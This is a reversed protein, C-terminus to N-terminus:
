AAEKTTWYKEYRGSLVTCRLALIANAGRVTWHMGSRKLRQAVAVRCGAELVGSTTCLGLAHFAPYRMRHRHTALYEACLRAEPCDDAHRSYAAILDDLNGAELEQYRQPLWAQALETGPGPGWIARSAEALHQKAHYRDLIQIADPFHESVLNWIWAAGDAVVVQQPIRNFGRRKAERCVREAFASIGPDSDHLRASEIAASYTVSGADRCARGELDRSQASWIACLKVERTKATGDPQKGARGALEEARMPVGTGDLGLYLTPATPVQEDRVSREHEALRSGVAEATREVQKTTVRIDALQELLERGEQFSVRAGVAGIM